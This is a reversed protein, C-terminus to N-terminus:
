NSDTGSTRWVTGRREYELRKEVAYAVDSGVFREILWLALDVGSTVGRATLLKNDDVIRAGIVECGLAAMEKSALHHMTTTRGKTIGCVAMLMGGTCVGGIITGQEYFQKIIQPLVGREAEKRAGQEGKHNWGGGPVILMDPRKEVSITADVNVKLGYFGKVEKQEDLTVLSVQFYDKIENSRKLVEYPAIADLEDFGNFLIIQIVM